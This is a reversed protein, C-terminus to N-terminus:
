EIGEDSDNCSGDCTSVMAPSPQQAMAPRHSLMPIVWKIGPKGQQAHGTVGVSSAESGHVVTDEMSAVRALREDRM